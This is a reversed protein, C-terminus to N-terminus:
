VLERHCVLSKSQMPLCYVHNSEQVQPIKIQLLRSIAVVIITASLNTRMWNFPPCLFYFFSFVIFAVVHPPFVVFFAFRMHLSPRQCLLSACSVCYFFTESLFASFFFFFFFSLLPLFLSSFYSPFTRCFFTPTSVLLLNSASDNPKAAPALLLDYFTPSHLEECAKKKTKTGVVCYVRKMTTIIIIKLVRTRVCVYVCWMCVNWMCVCVCIYSIDM